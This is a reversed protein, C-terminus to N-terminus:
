TLTATTPVDKCEDVVRRLFLAASQLMPEAIKELVALCPFRDVRSEDDGQHRERLHRSDSVDEVVFGHLRRAPDNEVLVELGKFLLDYVSVRLSAFM